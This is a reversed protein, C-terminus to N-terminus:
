IVDYDNQIILVDLDTIFNNEIYLNLKKFHNYSNNKVTKDTFKYHNLTFLKENYMLNVKSRLARELM